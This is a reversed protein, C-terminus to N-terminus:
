QNTNHESLDTNQNATVKALKEAARYKEPGGTVKAISWDVCKAM